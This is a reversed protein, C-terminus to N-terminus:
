ANNKEYYKYAFFIGVIMVIKLTLDIMPQNLFIATSLFSGLIFIFLSVFSLVLYKVDREEKVKVMYKYLLSFAIAFIVLEFWRTLGWELYRLAPVMNIKEVDSLIADMTVTESVYKELKGANANFSILIYQFMQSLTPLLIMLNFILANAVPLAESQVKKLQFKYLIVGAGVFSGAVILANLFGDLLPNNKVFDSVVGPTPGPFIVTTVLVMLVTRTINFILFGLLAWAISQGVEPSKKLRIFAYVPVLIMLILSIIMMAIKISDIM